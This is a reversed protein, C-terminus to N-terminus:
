HTIAEVDLGDAADQAGDRDGAPNDDERRLDNLVIALLGGISETDFEDDDPKTLLMTSEANECEFALMLIGAPSKKLM